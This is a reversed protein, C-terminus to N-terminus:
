ITYGPTKLLDRQPNCLDDVACEGTMIGCLTDSSMMRDRSLQVAVGKRQVM